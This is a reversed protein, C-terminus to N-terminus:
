VISVNMIDVTFLDGELNKVNVTIQGDPQTIFTKPDADGVFNFQVNADNNSVKVFVNHNFEKELTKKWSEQITEDLKAITQVEIHLSEITSRSDQSEDLVIVEIGGNAVARQIIGDKIYVIVKTKM